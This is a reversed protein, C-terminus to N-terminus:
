VVFQTFKKVCYPRLIFNCFTPRFKVFKPLLFDQNACFKQFIRRFYNETSIGHLFRWQIKSLACTLHILIWRPFFEFLKVCLRVKREARATIFLFNIAFRTPHIQPEFGLRFEVCIIVFTQYIKKVLLGLIYPTTLSPSCSWSSISASSWPWSSTSVSTSSAWPSV